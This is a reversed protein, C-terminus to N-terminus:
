AHAEPERGSLEPEAKIETDVHMLVSLPAVAFPPLITTFEKGVCDGSAEGNRIGQVRATRVLKITLPREQDTPNMVFVTRQEELSEQDTEWSFSASSVPGTNDTFTCWPEVQAVSLLNDVLPEVSTGAKEGGEVVIVHGGGPFVYLNFIWGHNLRFGRLDELKRLTARSLSSRFLVVSCDQFRAIQILADADEESVSLGEEVALLRLKKLELDSLKTRSTIIRLAVGLRNRLSDALRAPAFRNEVLVAATRHLEARGTAFSDSIGRIKRLFGDGCALLDEAHCWVQQYVVITSSLIFNRERDTLTSLDDLWAIDARSSSRILDGFLDERNVGSGALEEVLRNLTADRSYLNQARVKVHPFRMLRSKLFDVARSQFFREGQPGEAVQGQRRAFDGFDEDVLGASRYHKFLSDSVVLETEVDFGEQYLDGVVQVLKLLFHGYRQFVQPALLSVLPHINPPTCAYIPEGLRNQALNKPDRLLDDPVGGSQFGTALEPTVGLRVKLGTAKAQKLFKQLSHHRDSELHSWPVWAGVSNFGRDRIKTLQAYIEKGGLEWYRVVPTWELTM